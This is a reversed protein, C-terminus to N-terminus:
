HRQYIVKGVREIHELLSTNQIQTYLSLDIEYPLDLRELQEMIKFLLSMNLAAGKLTIDIDSGPRYNGKARSGYLIAQEVEQYQTFVGLIGKLTQQTLGCCM